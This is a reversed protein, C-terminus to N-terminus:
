RHRRNVEGLMKEGGNGMGMGLCLIENMDKEM